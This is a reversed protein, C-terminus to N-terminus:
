NGENLRTEMYQLRLTGSIAQSQRHNGAIAQSQRRNSEAMQWRGDEISRPDSAILSEDENKMNMKVYKLSPPREPFAQKCPGEM